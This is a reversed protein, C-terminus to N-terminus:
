CTKQMEEKIFSLAETVRGYVGFKGPRACGIGWSVVGAIYTKGGTTYTLPGLFTVVPHLTLKSDWLKQLLLTVIISELM